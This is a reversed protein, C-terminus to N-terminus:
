RALRTRAQSYCVPTLRLYLPVAICPSSTRPVESVSADAATSSTGLRVTRHTESRSFGSLLRVLRGIWALMFADDYCIVAVPCAHQMVHAARNESEKRRKEKKGPQRERGRIRLTIGTARASTSGLRTKAGNVHRQGM